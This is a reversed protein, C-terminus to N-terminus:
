SSIVRTFNEYATAQHTDILNTILAILRTQDADEVRVLNQKLAQNFDAIINNKAVQLVDQFARSTESITTGVAEHEFM